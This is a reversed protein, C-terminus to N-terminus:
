KQSAMVINSMLEGASKPAYGNVGDVSNGVLGATIDLTSFLVAPRGNRTIAMLRKSKVEGSVAFPRLKLTTLDYPAKLLPTEAPLEEPRADPFLTSLIAFASEGFESSGGAADVVLTGGGDVFARLENKCGDTLTFKGTGTLHALKFDQSLKGQGLPMADVALDIKQENHLMYGFHRWAAPEPDWNGQYSLRAVRITRETKVAPDVAVIGQGRFRTDGAAAAYQYVDAALEFHESRNKTQQGQWAKAPDIEPVLVMLERVGNSLAVLHPKARWKERKFQQRTYIPHEPPLDRFEYAPFLDKGLKKLATAFKASGCDSNAFIMGGSEVYARLNKKQVDNFAPDESGSIFLIPADLWQAPDSDVNVIQWNLRRESQKGIWQTVNAVDRPRQNWAEGKSAPVSYELKNIAVPARSRSLFLLGLSTEWVTGWSGDPAQSKVLYDSGM